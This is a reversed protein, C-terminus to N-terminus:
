ESDGVLMDILRNISNPNLELLVEGVWVKSRDVDIASIKNINVICIHAKCDYLQIFKKNM